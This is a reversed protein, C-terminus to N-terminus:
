IIILLALMLWFPLALINPTPVYMLYKLEKPLKLQRKISQCLACAIDNTDIRWTHVPISEEQGGVRLEEWPTTMLMSSSCNLCLMSITETYRPPPSLLSNDMNIHTIEVIKISPLGLLHFFFARFHQWPQTTRQSSAPYTNTNPHLTPWIAICTAKASLTTAHQAWPYASLGQRSHLGGGPALLWMSGEMTTIRTSKSLTGLTVQFLTPPM